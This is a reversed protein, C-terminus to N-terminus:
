NGTETNRARTPSSMAQAKGSLWRLRKGTKTSCSRAPHCSLCCRTPMGHCPTRRNWVMFNTVSATPCYCARGMAATLTCGYEGERAIRTLEVLPDVAGTSTTGASCAMCFVDMGSKRAKDLVIPVQSTDIRRKGDLPLWVINERGIGLMNVARILSYHADKGMAVAPRMSNRIASMGVRSCDTYHNNRAALLATLNALSGGSTEIMTFTDKNYGIYRNLEEGMIREAVCPLQSAEYFSAPQNVISNVLDTVATLPINGTYQRGLSGTSHVFLGTELYLKIISQFITNDNQVDNGNGTMLEKAKQYLTDPELMDIGKAGKTTLYDTLLPIISTLRGRFDESESAIQPIDNEYM